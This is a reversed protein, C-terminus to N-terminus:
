GAEMFTATVSGGGAIEVLINSRWYRFASVSGHYGQNFGTQPTHIEMKLWNTGDHSAEVAVVGSDIKGNSVLVMSVHAVCTAFDVTAGPGVTTAATLSGSAIPVAM